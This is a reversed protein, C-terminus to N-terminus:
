AGQSITAGPRTEGVPSLDAVAAADAFLRRQRALERALPEHVPRRGEADPHCWLGAPCHRDDDWGPYDLIPYLCIGAVPVGASRAVRVQDGMRRLWPARAEGEAGTETLVLPLRYRQHAEVMLEALPRHLPDGPRLKPGGLVWQNDPYYNVGLADLADEAGGLEPCRRGLLMDVAEYQALHHGHAAERVARQPSDTTVQILPEACLVRARPDAERIAATAAIAARALQAKLERGRGRAFPAFHGMDGAIWSWFSIENIPVYWPPSPSAQGIVEAAARAFRAFREVFGAGWIDLGDPWGYHCLDWAVEVGADRAARLRPVLERWDYRGPAREVLHWRVGDRAARIGVRALRDYDEAAFRDHGTAALLDLRRGDQRRQSSCDFGALFLSKFLTVNNGM